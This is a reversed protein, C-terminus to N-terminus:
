QDQTGDLQNKGDEAMDVDRFGRMEPTMKLNLEPYNPLHNGTTKRGTNKELCWRRADIFEMMRGDTEKDKPVRM